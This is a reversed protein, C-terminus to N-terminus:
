AAQKFKLVKAAPAVDLDRRPVERPDLLAM